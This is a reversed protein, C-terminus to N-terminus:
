PAHKSTAQPRGEEEKKKRRRKQPAHKSKAQPRGEEKATPSQLSVASDM